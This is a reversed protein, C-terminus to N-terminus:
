ILTAEPSSADVMPLLPPSQLACHPPLPPPPPLSPSVVALAALVNALPPSQPLRTQTIDPDTMDSSAFAAETSIAHDIDGQIREAYFQDLALKADDFSRYVRLHQRVWKSLREINWPLAFRSELMIIAGWDMKHRLCRGLAQNIARFAQIDYWKAGSLLLSRQSQAVDDQSAALDPVSRSDNYERKLVVKVDKFAPYPIGINVVTRCFYDSFDLGESVKGRYVAFMVAGRAVPHGTLPRDTALSDRFALLLKDFKGSSEGQPEVFVHKHVGIEAMVGTVTWRMFLKTLLSYSPVFVLMGDPCRAAISYIAHGVDDQFSFLDVNRYKGELPSGSVGCEVTLARFRSPDIVHAAELTSAFQVQLESAYSDIPSLTGSTLVISRTLSTIESFVVGPNLAWFALVNVPEAPAIFNNKPRKRPRSRRGSLSTSPHQPPAEQQSRARRICAIRYDDRFQCGPRLHDLVRLLKTLLRMSRSSLHKLKPKNEGQPEDDDLRKKNSRQENAARVAKTHNDIETVARRLRAVMPPSLMLSELVSDLSEHPSPWVSTKSNYDEYNRSSSDIGGDNNNRLWYILSTAVSEVIGHPEPAAGADILVRCESAMVVLEDDTIEHSAADRAASEVNHAEDLIVVSGELRINAAERVGPDLIYNYPCFVLDALDSLERSAYYPCAHIKRGLRGIDELDWIEMSGQPLMDKHALLKHFSKHPGCKMEDVLTRCQDDVSHSNLAYNNICTQKRSGLVATRLRYPTKRRLEDVLQSVQKHTRSGFYIRPMIKIQAATQLYNQLEKFDSPCLEAASSSSFSSAMSDECEVLSLIIEAAVPLMSLALSLLAKPSMGEIWSSRNNPSSPAFDKENPDDADPEASQKAAQKIKLQLENALERPHHEAFRRVIQQANAVTQRHTAQFARRWALAACLLALSKGSGTPSEIMTSQSSNLARIMHNMMGLQSGYPQFPFHVQVGAIFFSRHGHDPLVRIREAGAPLESSPLNEPKETKSM